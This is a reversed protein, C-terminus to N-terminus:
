LKRLVALQSQDTGQHVVELDINNDSVFQHIAQTMDMYKHHKYDDIIITGDTSLNNYYLELEQKVVKGSHSGDLFVLNPKQETFGPHFYPSYEQVLEIRSGFQELNSACETLSYYCDQNGLTNKYNESVLSEGHNSHWIDVCTIKVSPLSNAALVFASRGCFTGVEFIWGEDPVGNAMNALYELKTVSTWGPIDLNVIM